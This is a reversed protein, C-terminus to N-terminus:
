RHGGPKKKKEKRIDVVKDLFELLIGCSICFHGM